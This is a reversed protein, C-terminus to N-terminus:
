SKAKKDGQKPEAMQALNQRWEGLYQMWGDIAKLRAKATLVSLADTMRAQRLRCAEVYETQIKAYERQLNRYAMTARQM